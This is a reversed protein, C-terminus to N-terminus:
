VVQLNLINLLIAIKLHMIVTVGDQLVVSNLSTCNEFTANNIYNVKKPITIDYLSSCNKFARDGIYIISDPIIVKKIKDCDM